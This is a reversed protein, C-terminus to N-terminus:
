PSCRLRRARLMDLIPSLATRVPLIGLISVRISAAVNEAENVAQVSERAWTLWHTSGRHRRRTRTQRFRVATDTMVTRGVVPRGLMWSSGSGWHALFVLIGPKLRQKGDNQNEERRGAGTRRDPWPSHDLIPHGRHRSRM